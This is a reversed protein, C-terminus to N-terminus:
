GNESFTTMTVYEYIFYSIQAILHCSSFRENDAANLFMRSSMVEVEVNAKQIIIFIGKANKKVSYM